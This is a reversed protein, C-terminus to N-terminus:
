PITVSNLSFCFPFSFLVNTLPDSAAFLFTFLNHSVVHVLVNKKDGIEMELAEFKLVEILHVTESDPIEKM